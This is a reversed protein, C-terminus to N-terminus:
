DLRKPEPDVLFGLEKEFRQLASLIPARDSIRAAYCLTAWCYFSGDKQRIQRIRTTLLGRARLKRALEEAAPRAAREPYTKVVFFDTALEQEQAGRVGRLLQPQGLNQHVLVALAGLAAVM